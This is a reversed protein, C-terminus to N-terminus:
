FIFKRRVLLFSVNRSAKGGIGNSAVCAFEGSDEATANLVTLLVVGVNEKATFVSNVSNSATVSTLSSPVSQLNEGSFFLFNLSLAFELLYYSILIIDANIM